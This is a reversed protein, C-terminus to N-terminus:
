VNSVDRVFTLRVERTRASVWDSPATQAREVDSMFWDFASWATDAFNPPVSGILEGTEDFCEVWFGPRKDEIAKPHFVKSEAM